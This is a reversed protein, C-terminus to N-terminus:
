RENIIKIIDNLLTSAIITVESSPNLNHTVLNRQDKLKDFLPMFRQLFECLEPQKMRGPVINYPNYTIPFLARLLEDDKLAASLLDEYSFKEGPVMKVAKRLLPNIKPEVRNEYLLDLAGLSKRFEAIYVREYGPYFSRRYMNAFPFGATFYNKKLENVSSSHRAVAAIIEDALNVSKQAAIGLIKETLEKKLREVDHACNKLFERTMFDNIMVDPRFSKDSSGAVSLASVGFLSSPKAATHTLLEKLFKKAYALYSVTYYYYNAFLEDKIRDTRVTRGVPMTLINKDILIDVAKDSFFELANPIDNKSLYKRIYALNIEDKPVTSLDVEKVLEATVRQAVVNENNKVNETTKQRQALGKDSAQKVSDTQGSKMKETMENVQNVVQIVDPMPYKSYYAEFGTTKIGAKRETEGAILLYTDFTKTSEEIRAPFEASFEPAGVARAINAYLIKEVKAGSFQMLQAAYLLAFASNRMGGTSDIFIHKEEQAPNTTIDILGRIPKLIENVNDNENPNYEVPAFIDDGTYLNKGKLHEAIATKYYDLTTIGNFKEIKEELVEKTCLMIIKSLTKGQAELLEIVYKTVAENTQTGTIVRDVEPGRYFLEKSYGSLLSPVFLLYNKEALM